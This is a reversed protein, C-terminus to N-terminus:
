DIISQNRERDYTDNNDHGEKEEERRGCARDLDGVTDTLRIGSLLMYAMMARTLLTTNEGTGYEVDDIGYEADDTGYETDDYTDTMASPPAIQVLPWKITATAALSYETGTTPMALAKM